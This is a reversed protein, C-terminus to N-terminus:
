HSHCGPLLLLGPMLSQLPATVSDDLAQVLRVGQACEAQSLVM